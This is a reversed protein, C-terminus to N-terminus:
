KFAKLGCNYRVYVDISMETKPYRPYNGGFKRQHVM